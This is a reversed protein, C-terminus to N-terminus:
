HLRKNKKADQRLIEMVKDLTENANKALHQTLQTRVEIGDHTQIHGMLASIVIEGLEMGEVDHTRRWDSLTALIEGKLIEAPNRQSAGVPNEEELMGIREEM